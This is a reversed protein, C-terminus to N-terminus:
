DKIGFFGFLPVPGLMFQFDGAFRAAEFILAPTNAAVACRKPGIDDDRSEAVFAAIEDPTVPVHPNRERTTMGNIAVEIIVPSGDGGTTM